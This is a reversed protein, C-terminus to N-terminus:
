LINLTDLKSEYGFRNSKFPINSQGKDFKSKSVAVFQKYDMRTGTLIGDLIDLHGLLNFSGNTVWAEIRSGALVM